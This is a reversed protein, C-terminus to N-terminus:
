YSESDTDIPVLDSRFTGDADLEDTYPSDADMRNPQPAQPPDTSEADSAIWDMYERGEPDVQSM